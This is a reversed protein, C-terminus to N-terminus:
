HHHYKPYFRSPPMFDMRRHVQRGYLPPLFPVSYDQAYSLYPMGHSPIITNSVFSQTSSSSPRLRAELRREQDLGEGEANWQNHFQEDVLEYRTPDMTRDKRIKDAEIAYSTREGRRSDSRRQRHEKHRLGKRDTKGDQRNQEKFGERIGDQPDPETRRAVGCYKCEDLDEAIWYPCPQQSINFHSWIDSM